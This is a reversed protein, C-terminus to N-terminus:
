CTNLMKSLRGGEETTLVLLYTGTALVLADVDFLGGAGRSVLVERGLIDRLTLEVETGVVNSGSMDM